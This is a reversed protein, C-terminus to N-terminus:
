VKMFWRALSSVQAGIEKAIASIIAAPGRIFSTATDPEVRWRGKSSYNGASVGLLSVHWFSPSIVHEYTVPEECNEVDFGGYTMQGGYGNEEGGNNGVSAGMGSVAVSVDLSVM